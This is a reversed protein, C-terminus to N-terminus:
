QGRLILLFRFHVSYPGIEIDCANILHNNKEQVDNGRSNTFFQALRMLHLNQVMKLTIINGKSIPTKRVECSIDIELYPPIGDKDLIYEKNDDIIELM